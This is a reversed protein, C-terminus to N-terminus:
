TVCTDSYYNLNRVVTKEIIGRMEKNLIVRIYPRDREFGRLYILQYLITFHIFLYGIRLREEFLLNLYEFELDTAEWKEEKSWIV